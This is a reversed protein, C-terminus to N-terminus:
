GNNKNKMNINKLVDAMKSFEEGTINRSITEYIDDSDNRSSGMGWNFTPHTLSSPTIHEDVYDSQNCKIFSMQSTISDNYRSLKRSKNWHKDWLSSSGIGDFGWKHGLSYVCNKNGFTHNINDVASKPSDHETNKKPRTKNKDILWYSRYKELVQNVTRKKPIGTINTNNAIIGGNHMSRSKFDLLKNDIVNSVNIESYDKDKSFFTNSNDLKNVPSTKLTEVNVLPRNESSFQSRMNVQSEPLDGGGLLNDPYKESEIEFKLDSDSVPSQVVSSGTVNVNVQVIHLMGNISNVQLSNFETSDTNNLKRTIDQSSGEIKNCNQDLPVISLGNSIDVGNMLNLGEGSQNGNGNSRGNISNIDPNTKVVHVGLESKGNETSGVHFLNVTFPGNGTIITQYGNTCPPLVQQAPHAAQNACMYSTNYNVPYCSTNSSQTKSNSSITTRSNNEGQYSVSVNNLTTVVCPPVNTKSTLPTINNTGNVLVNAQRNHENSYRQSAQM